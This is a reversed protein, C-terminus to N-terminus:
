CPSQIYLFTYVIIYLVLKILNQRNLTKVVM